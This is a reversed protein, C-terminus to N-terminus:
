SEAQKLAQEKPGVEKRVKQFKDVATAWLFLGACAQSVGFIKDYTFDEKTLYVARFKKFNKEPYTDIKDGFQLLMERFNM